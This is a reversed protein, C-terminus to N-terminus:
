FDLRATLTLGQYMLDGSGAAGVLTTEQLLTRMANQNWFYHFEYLAAFDFHWERNSFYAGWGLGLAGEINPTIQGHDNQYRFANAGTVSYAQIEAELKQYALSGAVNGILRFDKGLLWSTQIGTRAGIAWSDVDGHSFASTTPSVTYTVDLDQDMWYARAGIFPMFTLHTGVYYSRGMIFDAINNHHEWESSVNTFSPTNWFPTSTATLPVTHSTDSENRIWTYEGYFTWNDFTSNMGLGVKFGPKYEFETNLVKGSKPLNAYSGLSLGDMRAQWYILSGTLYFDWAGEVDIRAPSNYGSAMQNAQIPNGQDYGSPQEGPATNCYGSAALSFLVLPLLKFLKSKM